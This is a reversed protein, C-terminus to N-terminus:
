TNREKSVRQMHSEIQEKRAGERKKKLGFNIRKELFTTTATWKERQWSKSKMRLKMRDKKGKGTRGQRSTMGTIRWMVNRKRRGKKKEM